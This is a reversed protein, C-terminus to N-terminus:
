KPIKCIQIDMTSKSCKFLYENYQNVYESGPDRQVHARNNEDISTTNRPQKPFGFRCNGEVLCYTSCNHIQLITVLDFFPRDQISYPFIAVILDNM